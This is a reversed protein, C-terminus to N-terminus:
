NLRASGTLKIGTLTEVRVGARRMAKVVARRTVGESLLVGAMALEGDAKRVYVLLSRKGDDHPIENSVLAKGSRSLSLFASLQQLGTEDDRGALEIGIGHAPAAGTTAM